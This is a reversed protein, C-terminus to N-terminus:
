VAVREEFLRQRIPYNIEDLVYQRALGNELNFIVPSKLNVTSNRFDEHVTVIAVCRLMDPHEAKLEALMEDTYNIRYTQFFYCPDCVTFCPYGGNEARLYLFPLGEGIPELRYRGIDEFGLIGTKFTLVFPNNRDLLTLEATKM